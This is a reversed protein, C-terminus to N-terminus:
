RAYIRKKGKLKNSISKRHSEILVKSLLITVKQQWLKHFSLFVYFVTRWANMKMRGEAEKARAGPSGPAKM